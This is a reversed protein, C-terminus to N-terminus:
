SRSRTRKSAIGNQMVICKVVACAIGRSAYYSEEYLVSGEYNLLMGEYHARLGEYHM